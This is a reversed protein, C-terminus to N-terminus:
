PLVLRFTLNVLTTPRFRPPIADVYARLDAGLRDPRLQSGISSNVSRLGFTMATDYGGAILDPLHLVAFQGRLARPM